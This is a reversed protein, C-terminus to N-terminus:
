KSLREKLTDIVAKKQQDDVRFRFVYVTFHEALDDSSPSRGGHRVMFDSRTLDADWRYLPIVRQKVTDPIDIEGM